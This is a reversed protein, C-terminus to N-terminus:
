RVFKINFDFNKPELILNDWKLFLPCTEEVSRGVQLTIFFFIQFLILLIETDFHFM